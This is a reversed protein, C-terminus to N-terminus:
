RQVAGGRGMIPWVDVLREGDVVYIRDGASTTMDLTTPYVEVRQGIALGDEGERWHLIGYEAGQNEITVWPMGRVQDTPRLMAKDGADITCQNRHPRGTVTAMVTLAYEFDDFERPNGRSGIVRYQTDM